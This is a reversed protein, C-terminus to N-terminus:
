IGQFIRTRCKSFFSLNSSMKCDNREYMKVFNRQFNCARAFTEFVRLSRAFKLIIYRYDQLAQFISRYSGGRVFILTSVASFPARFPRLLRVMQFVGIPSAELVLVRSSIDPTLIGVGSSDISADICGSCFVIISSHKRLM